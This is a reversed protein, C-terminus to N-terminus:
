LSLIVEDLSLHAGYLESSPTSVDFLAKELGATDKPTLGIRLNLLTEPAAAGQNAFSNPASARQDHVVMARPTPGGAVISALASVIFAYSLVGM